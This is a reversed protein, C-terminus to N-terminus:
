EALRTAIMEIIRTSLNRKNLRPLAVEAYDWLVTTQNADSNFGITTDSVDNAIVMDLGKKVLKKRAHDLLHETEAAFGVTFPKNPLSAM